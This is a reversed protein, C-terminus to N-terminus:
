PSPSYSIRIGRYEEITKGPAGGNIRQSSYVILLHSSDVWKIKPKEASQRGMSNAYFIASRDDDDHDAIIEDPRHIHIEDYLMGQGFGLGNDLEELTAVLRNDPSSFDEVQGLLPEAKLYNRLTYGSVVLLAITGAIMFRRRVLRMLPFSRMKLGFFDIPLKHSDTRKTNDGFETQATM